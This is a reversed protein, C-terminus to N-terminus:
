IPQHQQRSKLRRGELLKLYQSDNYRGCEQLRRRWSARDTVLEQWDVPRISLQNLDCKVVDHCRLRPHGISRKGHVTESFLIRKPIRSSDMRAVHGLWRLRRQKVKTSMAALATRRLIEENTVRDQWEAGLIKSLLLFHQSSLRQEENSYSSWSESGCLLTRLFCAKYVSAKTKVTLYKNSWVRKHLRGFVSCAKGVRSDIEKALTNDAAIISGFYPFTGVAALKDDDHKVTPENANQAMIVTKTRSITLGFMKCTDHFRALLCQLEIQTHMAVIAAVEAYM